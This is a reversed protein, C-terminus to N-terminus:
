VDITKFEDSKITGSSSDDSFEIHDPLNILQDQKFRQKLLTSTELLKVYTNYTKNLYTTDDEGRKQYPLTLTKFIDIALCYFDRAVKNEKQLVSDINLYLKVSTIMAILVGVICTSISITEQSLYDQSGVSLPSSLCSLILIPMDFYNSYSKFRYFKKKHKESLLVSNLRIKELIICVDKDWKEM